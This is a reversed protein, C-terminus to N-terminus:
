FELLTSKKINQFIFVYYSENLLQLLQDNHANWRREPPKRRAAFSKKNEGRTGKQGRSHWFRVLEVWNRWCVPPIGWSGSYEWRSQSYFRHQQMTRVESFSIKTAQVRRYEVTKVAAATMYPCFQIHTKKKDVRILTSTSNLLSNILSEASKSNFDTCWAVDGETKDRMRSVPKQISFCALNKKFSVNKWHWTDIDQIYRLM